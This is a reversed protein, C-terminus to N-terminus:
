KGNKRKALCLIKRRHSDSPALFLRALVKLYNGTQNCRVLWHLVTQKQMQQCRFSASISDGATPPQLKLRTNMVSHCDYCRVNGQRMKLFIPEIQTRYTKFDLSSPSHSDSRQNQMQSSSKENATCAAIGMFLFNLRQPNHIQM